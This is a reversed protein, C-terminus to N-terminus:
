HKIYDWNVDLPVPGQCDKCPTKTKCVGGKCAFEGKRPHEPAKDITHWPKHLKKLMAQELALHIKGKPYAAILHLSSLFILSIYVFIM